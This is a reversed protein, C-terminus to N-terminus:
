RLTTSSCCPFKGIAVQSSYFVMVETEKNARVDIAIEISGISYWWITWYRITHYLEAMAVMQDKQLFSLHLCICVLNILWDCSSNTNGM